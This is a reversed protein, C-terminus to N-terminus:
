AARGPAQWGGQWNNNAHAQQVDQLHAALDHETMVSGQVTVHFINTVTVTGGGGAGGGGYGGGPPRSFGGALRGGMRTMAAEAMASAGDIGRAVGAPIEFGLEAMVGSPSAIKLDKKIVAVIQQAMSKMANDVGSLSAKLGAALGSAVQQGAAYMAPGGVDGIKSSSAVISAELQNIQAIAAKGGGPGTLGQLLPLGAPAGSQAIQSLSQANLGEKGALALQQAFAKQDAAMQQMGAIAGQASQPGAASAPTYSGAGTISMGSIASQAIQQSDTIETELKTRQAALGTLKAEDAKLFAVLASDKGAYGIGKSIASDIATVDAAKATIKGLATAAATLAPQGGELGTILGEVTNAGIQQTVKSPSRTQLTTAMAATVAASVQKAAAIAAGEGSLIGQALGESIANGDARAPGAAAAYPSLDPPAPKVPKKLAADAAQEIATARAQAQGKASDLASLDPPPLKLKAGAGSRMLDELQAVKAKAADLGTTDATIKLATGPHGGAGLMALGATPAAPPAAPQPRSGGGFGFFSAAAHFDSEAGTKIYNGIDAAQSRMFHQYDMIGAQLNGAGSKGLVTNLVSEVGSPAASIAKQQATTPKPMVSTIARAIADEIALALGARLTGFIATGGIVRAMGAAGLGGLAAEGEAAAAGAGKAGALAGLGGAASGEKNGAAAGAMTDAARQMAGAAGAMTDGARQMGAAAGGSGLNALKDIGLLKGAGALVKEGTTFASEIGSTLKKATFLAALGGFALAMDRAGSKSGNIDALLKDAWGVATSFAPLLATGFGVAGAQLGATLEKWKQAPTAQTAAWAANFDNAGKTLAPYKSQFRDLNEMLLSLGAGAKKGFIDTIVGGMNHADIGNAKFRASLDDLAKLLGGSEMDNSLSKTTLGLSALEAKGTAAPVALAQVAMRLETGAKAGRINLDGYTALAAGTDKLTLGYGKVVPVVGTSMAESLDQMTMDGAGVTANIAGMAQQYNKAGPIGSAIVSTLANTTDVLNSHGVAAGQAAIKVANLMQPVTGGVSEMNSAVHYASAAVDTLSQGTQTSILLVGQSMKQTDAVSVGAQTHLLLMQSQFKMARDIGYGAAVGVGLLVTKLGDWFKTAGAAAAESSGGAREGAVAQKDLAAAAADASGAVKDEAAAAKDASGAITDLGGTAERASTSLRGMSAAARTSAAEIRDAAASMSAAAKDMSAALKDAGAGGAGGSNLKALSAEAKDAAAAFADLQGIAEEANIVITDNIV